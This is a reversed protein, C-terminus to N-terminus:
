EESSNLYSYLKYANKDFLNQITIVEALYEFRAKKKFMGDKYYELLIPIIEYRIKYEKHEVDDKNYIFYSNGIQIDEAKIGSSIYERSFLRKIKNFLLRDKEKEIPLEKIEYFNSLVDVFAFRRRLAYDMGIISRDASNMTGIIYLNNPIELTRNHQIEVEKGRYELAYLLEGLVSSLPARNIEDIILVYEKDKNKNAKDAYKKIIKNEVSYKLMGNETEVNVGIVFDEYGYAPHFQILKIQDKYKNVMDNESGILINECLSLYESDKKDSTSTVLKAALIKALRTKGTGPPGQLIVQKNAKLLDNILECSNISNKESLINNDEWIQKNNTNKAYNDYIAIMKSLKEFFDKEFDKTMRKQMNVKCYYVFTNSYKGEFAEDIEDVAKNNVLGRYIKNIQSVYSCDIKKYEDKNNKKIKEDTNKQDGTGICLGIYLYNNDKSNLFITIYPKKNSTLETIGKNLLAIYPYETPNSNQGFGIKMKVIDLNVKKERM